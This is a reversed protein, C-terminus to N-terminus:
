HPRARSLRGRPSLVPLPDRHRMMVMGMVTLLAATEQGGPCTQDQDPEHDNRTCQKEGFVAGVHEAGQNVQWEQKTREHMKPMPVAAMTLVIAVPPGLAVWQLARM